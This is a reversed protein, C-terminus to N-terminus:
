SIDGQLYSDDCQHAGGQLDTPRKPDKAMETPISGKSRPRKLTETSTEGFKSV